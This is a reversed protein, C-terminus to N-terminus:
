RFTPNRIGEETPGFSDRGGALRPLYLLSSELNFQDDLGQLRKHFGGISEEIAKLVDKVNQGANRFGFKRRVYKPFRTLPSVSRYGGRWWPRM